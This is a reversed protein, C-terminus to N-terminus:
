SPRVSANPVVWAASLLLALLAGPAVVGGIASLAPISSFALLGFSVVTTLNALLLSALTDDRTPASDQLEVFFLAYNSGLAVVLLLGILHLIGLKHGLVALGGVTLLVALILPVCVRGVGRADRLWLALLVVVALAGLLAQMRAEGLYRQYLGSLQSGVDLVLVQPLGRLAEELSRQDIAAGTPPTLPVLVMWQGQPTQQILADVLPSLSTKRVAELTIWTQSRAQQVDQIFPELRDAALAGGVTAERLAGRLSELDPLAERRLAQAKLSPVFRTVADFGGLKGAALLGELRESVVEVRQLTAELDAGQVVVLSGSDSAFIESRMQADLDLREAPIPSLSSLEARWLNPHLLASLLAVGGLLVWAWRVRRMLQVLQRASAALHVRLGQGKAGNPMIQPLLWRTTLVAALLGAISFVGLQQLGPFGSFVLAAFGCISTLVGLRVTPWGTKLWARWGAGDQGQGALPRSQILYYIAYDVAEGVLTSGFGLTVGHVTGFFFGVVAVGALVGTMVPILAVVVAWPSAFTLLLLVSVLVTGAIALWHVEREMTARSDISFVPSGTLQLSLGPAQAVQRADEFSRRILDVARAHADLDSGAARTTALILARPTERAMWVGEDSRPARSPMLGEFIVVSEGTPDRNLIPKIAQGAPTGLLSLTDDLGARLGNPTFRSADVAPSLLYRHEFIWEGVDKWAEHEGNSVQDFFGSGRMAAALARSVAARQQLSGGDIGVMITRAPVGTKIQELLVQQGADTTAPLFASLDASIPTRSVLIAACLVSLLWCFIVGYRMRSVRAATM